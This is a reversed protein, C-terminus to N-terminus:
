SPFDRMEPLPLGHAQNPTCWATKRSVPTHGEGSGLFPVHGGDPESVWGRGEEGVTYIPRPSSRVSQLSGRYSGPSPLVQFTGGPTSQVVGARSPPCGQEELRQPCQSSRVVSGPTHVELWSKRGWLGPRVSGSAWRGTGKVRLSVHAGSLQGPSRQREEGKWLPCHRKANQLTESKKTCVSSQQFFLGTWLM